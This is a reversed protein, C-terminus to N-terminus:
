LITALVIVVIVVGAIVKHDTWYHKISELLKNMINDGQNSIGHKQRCEM